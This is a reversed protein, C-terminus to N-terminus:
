LAANGPRTAYVDTFYLRLPGQSRPLSVGDGIKQPHAGIFGYSRSHGRGQEPDRGEGGLAEESESGFGLVSNIKTCMKPILVQTGGHQCLPPHTM